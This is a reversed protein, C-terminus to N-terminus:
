ANAFLLVHVQVSGTEELRFLLDYNNYQSFVRLTYCVTNSQNMNYLQAVSVVFVLADWLLLHTM